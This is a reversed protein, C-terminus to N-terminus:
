RSSSIFITFHFFKYYQTAGTDTGLATYCCEAASVSQPVILWYLSHGGDVTPITVRCTHQTEIILASGLQCGNLRILCVRNQSFKFLHIINANDSLIHVIQMLPSTAAINDMQMTFQGLHARLICVCIHVIPTLTIHLIYAVPCDIHAILATRVVSLQTGM